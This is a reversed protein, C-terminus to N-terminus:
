GMYSRPIVRGNSLTVYDSDESSYEYQSHEEDSISEYWSVDDRVQIKALNLRNARSPVEPYLEFPIDFCHHFNPEVQLGLREFEVKLFKYIITSTKYDPKSVDQCGLRILLRRVNARPVFCHQHVSLETIPNIVELRVLERLVFNAGIGLPLPPADAGGGQFAPNTRPATIHHLNFNTQINEISLFSDIYADLYSAIRYISPFKEMWYYWTTDEIQKDMYEDLVEMWKKSLEHPNRETFIEWWSRELCFRIFERHQEHKTRGMTHTIGIFFLMIWASRDRKQLKQKLKDITIPYLRENYKKIETIHNVQWWTYIERLTEDINFTPIEPIIEQVIENRNEELSLNSVESWTIEGRIARQVQRCQEEQQSNVRLIEEIGEYNEMWTGTIRYQLANTFAQKREDSVLYNRVAQKKDNTDAAIAWDVMEKPDIIERQEPCTLFFELSKGTYSHHLLRNNPAFAARLSEEDKTTGRLLLKSASVYKGNDESQFYVNKLEAIIKDYEERASQTSQLGKLFDRTIIEGLANATNHSVQKNGLEWVLIDAFQLKSVNDPVNNDLLNKVDQWVKNAIVNSPHCKQQFVQWNSVKEFYERQSLIGDVRYVINELLVLQRYKTGYLGNPLAAKSAILYGMSCYEGGFATRIIKNTRERNSELWDVALVEWLFEWFTYEDVEGIQLNERLAQWNSRSLNFLQDLKEGLGEGIKKAIEVNHDSNPDLTTRGTTVDFMANVVFRLHFKEKTPATVWFTPLNSLPSPKDAFNKPLAIAITADEIRFCLLNCTIWERAKQKISQVKIQGFEIGAIRLVTKPKWTFTQKLCSNEVDVLKCSKIYKSFVLLLSVKDEFDNIVENFNSIADPDIKLSILTGDKINASPQESQLQKRLQKQLECDALESHRRPLAFPLLGACVSFCLDDSMVIPEQSILHVTKFGLGFKGTRGESKNSINFNLMKFLDRHFGQERFDKDPADPHVFRNIPRGWYMVTFYQSDWSIVYHLRDPSITGTMEQLEALSDDANQFLEFPINSSNYGYHGQGIKKRVANLIGDAIGHNEQILNELYKKAEDRKEEVKKNKSSVKTDLNNRRRLEEIRLEAEWYQNLYSDVDPHRVGLMSLITHLNNLILNRVLQVDLQKSSALDEWIEKFSEILETRYVKEILLKASEALILHLKDALSEQVNFALLTLEETNKDLTGVFLSDVIRNRSIPAKFDNGLLNKIYQFNASQSKIQIAFNRNRLEESWLFREKLDEFDRQQLYVKSLEKIETNSGSILCLFGGIAESSIYSLWPRFYDELLQADTKQSNDTLALASKLIKKGQVSSPNVNDLYASLIERQQTNLVYEKDIGTNVSGDCLKDSSKWQCNQNLLDIKSLISQQFNQGSQYSIKLYENYILIENDSPNTYTESIWKLIKVIKECSYLPKLVKPLIFEKVNQSSIKEIIKLVPLETFNDSKLVQIFEQLPFNNINFNGIYYNSLQSLSNGIANLADKDTTFLTQLQSHDLCFNIDIGDNLMAPTVYDWPELQTLIVTSENKLAPFNIIKIPNIPRSKSDLLWTKKKLSELNENSITQKRDQLIKLIKIILKCWVHPQKTENLLFNLINNEYWYSDSFVPNLENLHHKELDLRSLTVYSSNEARFVKELEDEINFLQKIGKIHLNVLNEPSIIGGLKLPLWKTQKLTSILKENVHPLLNLITLYFKVPHEQNLIINIATKPTWKPIWDQRLTNDIKILTVIDKFQSNLPFENNELYTNTTTISVLKGDVTEHFPLKNWLLEHSSDNTSSIQRLVQQREEQTFDNGTISILNTLLDNIITEPEIYQISLSNYIESKIKGALLNPIIRWSELIKHAVKEWVPKGRSVYLTDDNEYKDRNGHLLFRLEYFNSHKHLNM